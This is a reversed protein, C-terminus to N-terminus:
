KLVYKQYVGGGGGDRNCEEGLWQLMQLPSAARKKKTNERCLSMVVTSSLFAMTFVFLSLSEAVLAPRHSLDTNAKAPLQAKVARLFFQEM